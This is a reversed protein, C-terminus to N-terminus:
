LKAMPTTLVCADLGLLLAVLLLHIRPLSHPLRPLQYAILFTGSTTELGIRGSRDAASASSLRLWDAAKPNQLHIWQFKEGVLIWFSFKPVVFSRDVPCREVVM